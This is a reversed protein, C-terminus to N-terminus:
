PSNPWFAKRPMTTTLAMPMTATMRSALVQFPSGSNPAYLLNEELGELEEGGSPPSTPHPPQVLKRLGREWGRGRAPSLFILHTPLLTKPTM